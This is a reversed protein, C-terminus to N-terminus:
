RRQVDFAIRRGTMTCAHAHGRPLTCFVNMGLWLDDMQNCQNRDYQRNIRPVIDVTPGRAFGTCQASVGMRHCADCRMEFTGFVISYVGPIRLCKRALCGTCHTHEANECLLYVHDVGPKECAICESTYGNDEETYDHADDIDCVLCMQDPSAPRSSYLMAHKTREVVANWYGTHM